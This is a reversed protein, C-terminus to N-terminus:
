VLVFAQPRAELELYRSTRSIRVLPVGIYNRQENLTGFPNLAGAWFSCPELAGCRFIRPEPVGDNRSWKAM